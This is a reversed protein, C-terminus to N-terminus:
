KYLPWAETACLATPPKTKFCATATQGPLSQPSCSGKHLDCPYIRNVGINCRKWQWRWISQDSDTIFCFWELNSFNVWLEMFHEDSMSNDLLSIDTVVSAVTLRYCPWMVVCMGPILSLFLFLSTNFFNWFSRAASVSPHMFGYPTLITDYNWGCILTFLNM